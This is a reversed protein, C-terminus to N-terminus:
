DGWVTPVNLRHARATTIADAIVRRQSASLPPALKEDPVISAKSWEGIFEVRAGQLVLMAVAEQSFAERLRASCTRAREIFRSLDRKVDKATKSKPLPLGYLMVSLGGNQTRRWIGTTRFFTAGDFYAGVIARMADRGHGLDFARDKQGFDVSLMVM